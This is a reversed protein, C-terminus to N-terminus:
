KAGARVLNEFRSGVDGALAAPNGVEVIEGKDMVVVTDFDMIMDLRHSVAIVTYNRFERRIIEQMVRETESDVSSSVEDLLLIGRDSRGSRAGMNRARSTRRLLARGLSLLQRQGASLTGASIGATLGGRERVFESLGVALLASECEDATSTGTPDLNAQFSSGDPLFVAEQPVAILRQRLASRNIRSLPTNDIVAAGPATGPVPDLLKLLLAVLSSKGSGTRGCIAVKEGSRIKLHIERLALKPTGEETQDETRGYSASVDTLEVTGRQPWQEPPVIDEDERDEPKVNENFTKLRAVAGISTELKTYFTVIGSLNEGFSMLSFLAAGAFASNSHLRVALTTLTVAMVMVVMNLVLNLWQQIIMLLYAPRQSSDILQVNKQIDDPIFGFARLTAVGKLTDLFHTYLPSKAELDLIRLQRSTRLYFRQVLYLVGALLPYSIALYVSSTLMVAAQGLSQFVCFLTTLTANPLETDILNLDQSFLNTVVGTDTNTFFSLPARLLTKLAEQHLNAGARKVAFIYLSIGLLLLSIMASVQLLAYIGAYYASSHTPHASSNDGTWYTLWITPFNTFFGWLAAFFLSSGALFWGMSKFYQKYVTKDGVQRSQNAAPGLPSKNSPKTYVIARPKSEEASDNSMVEESSTDRDSYASLGLRQIYGNGSMLKDFTGQETVTGDGLAIIHDASRLHRISHTCLVTTSRRRRLLGGPGFVQQFVQEETDMDLGSFVDDLVLLDTQLYLARALSVRQKQGGSLVIGDSGINTQDGQPLTALDFGLATAEIVEAYREQDFSSFGVINDRISGNSLFPTQDCFGVHPFRTSLIVGGESFPIEGLLAKCLTSKGSGVPGVVITLSSKAVRTNVNQLVFKDAEWGFKGEKITVTDVTDFESGSSREPEIQPKETNRRLDALVQRFDERSECELFAQIRGLCAFGSVLQPITQFVESLQYTLLTLFSLSTFVKSANISGQAFALTLPPGILLPTFGFIAAIIFVQRFRAGAGLEEVRLTQVYDGVAASLGSIKLNKMSAIVTATLGVRKQVGTMWARQSDGTFRMLIGVGVFCVIVLGIPAIFVIGLRDYLMWGALAVQIFSVWVEHLLLFGIQIREMDTSMLTLAASDDGTGIRSETAKAFIETILISRAMTRMRCHFYWYFATSISIGAYILLSAGIFGYGVNPDLEPQALYDLLREIFLPQCFTFALLALRPAVPLLLPVTLTRALVKVLGFKDGKLKSYVMNKTFKDHLSRADFTSDLPYLDEITLVKKYGIMFIKNLWLFAGLSFIGSTEEPSHEKGNWEIWRSKQQAELLLIAVKLAIAACFISSYTFEPKNDSSLFLTRAQAADLILTLFLYSNLLMSPRLSRSHDLVSIIIMFLAAVLKLASAAIFMSTVHFSGVAVLILLSLELGVYTTIAGLKILQFVPANVVTPKRAQSLTRWLSTVIFLISPIISFFLQEFQINFDFGEQNLQLLGGQEATFPM